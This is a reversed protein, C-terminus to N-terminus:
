ISLQLSPLCLNPGVLLPNLIIFFFYMKQWYYTLVRQRYSDQEKEQRLITNAHFFFLHWILYLFCCSLIVLGTISRLGSSKMMHLWGNELKKLSKNEALLKRKSRLLKFCLIKSSVLLTWLEKVIFFVFCNSLYM